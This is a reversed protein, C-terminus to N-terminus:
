ASRHSNARYRLAVKQIALDLPLSARGHAKDVWRGGKLNALAAADLEQLEKNEQDVVKRQREQNLEHHYWAQTGVTIVVLLIASILGITFVVPVNVGARDHDEVAENPIRQHHHEDAMITDTEEM